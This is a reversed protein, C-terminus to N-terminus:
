ANLKTPFQFPITKANVSAVTSHASRAFMLAMVVGVITSGVGVFGIVFVGVVIIDVVVVGGVDM